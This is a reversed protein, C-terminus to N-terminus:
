GLQPLLDPGILAEHRQQQGDPVPQQAGHAAAVSGGPQGAGGLQGGPRGSRALGRRRPYSVLGPGARALQAAAPHRIRHRGQVTRGRGRDVPRARRHGPSGVANRGRVGAPVLAAVISGAPNHDRAVDRSTPWRRTWRRGTTTRCRCGGSRHGREAEGADLLAAALSDSTSYVAAHIGGLAVRAAGTLTAIDVLLDPELGRGVAYALADALVLRGEADTNLVEVSTGGYQSIVDGPRYASGSPMNEAAAVLGTVKSRVGLEALATMVAIVAGGGAMDTKMAVMGDNPKLSLGGSDFTIGKGVLVIHQRAGPPDYSLEILAPPRASGSGVAVIGGFGASALEDALWTRVTM